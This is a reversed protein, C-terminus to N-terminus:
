RQTIGNVIFHKTIMEDIRREESLLNDFDMAAFTYVPQVGDKILYDITQADVVSQEQTFPMMNDLEAIVLDAHDIATHL